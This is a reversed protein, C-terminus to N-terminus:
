RRRGGFTARESGHVCGSVRPRLKGKVRRARDGDLAIVRVFVRTRSKFRLGDDCWGGGFREVGAYVGARRRDLGSGFVGRKGHRKLTVSPCLANPCHSAFRYERRVVDGRRQHFPSGGRRIRARVTFEGGLRPDLSSFTRIEGADSGAPNTAVLRYRYETGWALRAVPASIAVPATGTVVQARTSRSLRTGRGFEFHYSTQLGNPQVTGRLVASDVHVDSVDGTVATPAGTVAAPSTAVRSAAASAVIAALGLLAAGRRFRPAPV